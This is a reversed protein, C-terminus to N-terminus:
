RDEGAVGLEAGDGGDSGAERGGFLDNGIRVPMCRPRM